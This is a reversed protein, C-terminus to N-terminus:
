GFAVFLAAIATRFCRVARVNKREPGVYRGNSGSFDSSSMSPVECGEMVAQQYAETGRGGALAVQLFLEMGGWCRISRDSAVPTPSNTGRCVLCCCESTVWPTHRRRRGM